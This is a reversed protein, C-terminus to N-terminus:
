SLNHQLDCILSDLYNPDFTSINLRQSETFRGIIRAGYTIDKFVRLEKGHM